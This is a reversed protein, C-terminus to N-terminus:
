GRFVNENHWAIFDSGPRLRKDPPLHLLRGHM